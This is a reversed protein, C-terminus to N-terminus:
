ARVLARREAACGNVQPGQMKSPHFVVGVTLASEEQEPEDSQIKQVYSLTANILQKYSDPGTIEQSTMNTIALQFALTTRTVAKKVAEFHETKNDEISATIANKDAVFFFKGILRVGNDSTCVSISNGAPKQFTEDLVIETTDTVPVRPPEQSEEALAPVSALSLATAFIASYRFM